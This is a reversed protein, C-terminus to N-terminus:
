RGPSTFAPYTPWGPTWTREAWDAAVGFGARLRPLGTLTTAAWRWRAALRQRPTTFLPLGDAREVVVDRQAAEWSIETMTLVTYAGAAQLVLPWDPDDLTAALEPRVAQEFAATLHVTFDAPADYLCWCTGFPMWAYAADLALHHVSSGELDVFRPGGATFIVNDPCFDGATVVADRPDPEALQDFIVLEDAVEAPDGFGITQLRTLAERPLGPSPLGGRTRTDPDVSAVADRFAEVESRSGACLRGLATAWEASRTWALGPDDGLLAESLGPGSGVDSMILLALDHDVALLAPVGPITSLGAYERAYGYGGSSRARDPRAFWKVVATPHDPRSTRVRLVTSRDAGGLQDVLSVDCGLLEAARHLTEEYM